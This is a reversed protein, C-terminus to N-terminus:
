AARRITWVTSGAKTKLVTTQSEPDHFYTMPEENETLWRLVDLHGEEDFLYHAPDKPRIIRPFPVVNSQKKRTRRKAPTTSHM